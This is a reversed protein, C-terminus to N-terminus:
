AIKSSLLNCAAIILDAERPDCQGKDAYVAVIDLLSAYEAKIQDQLKSGGVSDQFEIVSYTINWVKGDFFLKPNIKFIDVIGRPRLFHVFEGNEILSGLESFDRGKKVLASALAAKEEQPLNTYVENSEAEIADALKMRISDFLNQLENDAESSSFKEPWCKRLIAHTLKTISHEAPHKTALSQYYTHLYAAAESAVQYELRVGAQLFLEHRPDLYIELGNDAFRVSPLPTKTGDRHYVM